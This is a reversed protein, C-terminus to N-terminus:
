ADFTFQEGAGVASDLTNAFTTGIVLGAGWHSFM